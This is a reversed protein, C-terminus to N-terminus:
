SVYIGRLRGSDRLRMLSDIIAGRSQTSCLASRAEDTQQRLQAVKSKTSEERKRSQALEKNLETLRASVQERLNKMEQLEVTKTQVSEKLNVLTQEAEQVIRQEAELENNL